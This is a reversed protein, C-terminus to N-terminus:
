TKHVLRFGSVLGINSNPKPYLQLTTVPPLTSVCCVIKCTLTLKTLKIFRGRTSVSGSLQRMSVLSELNLIEKFMKEM